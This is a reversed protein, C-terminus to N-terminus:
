RGVSERLEERLALLDAHSHAIVRAAEEEKGDIGTDEWTRVWEDLWRLFEFRQRAGQIGQRANLATLHLRDPFRPEGGVVRESINVIMEMRDLLEEMAARINARLQECTGYNAFLIKLLYEDETEWREAPEGLWTALARRGAETISYVTRGRKGTYEKTAEALGHAVLNKPEAYLRSETRPWFRRVASTRMYDTLDYASWSRTALVGLIAYSTTTLPRTSM